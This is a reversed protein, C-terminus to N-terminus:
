SRELIVSAPTIISLDVDDVLRRAKGFMVIDPASNAIVSVGM